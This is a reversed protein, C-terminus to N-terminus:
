ATVELLIEVSDVDNVSPEASRAYDVTVSKVTNGSITTADTKEVLVSGTADLLRTHVDVDHAGADTNNVTVDVGDVSTGTYLLDHDDLAIDESQPVPGVAVDIPTFTLSQVAVAAAPVSLLSM